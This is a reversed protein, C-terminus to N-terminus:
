PPLPAWLPWGQLLSHAVVPCSLVLEQRFDDSSRSIREVIRGHRRVDRGDLWSVHWGELVVCGCGHDLGGSVGVVKFFTVLSDNAPEPPADAFIDTVGHVQLKVGRQFVLFVAVEVYEGALLEDVELLFIARKVDDGYVVYFDVGKSSPFAVCILAEALKCRAEVLTLRPKRRVADISTYELPTKEFSVIVWHVSRPGARWVWALM